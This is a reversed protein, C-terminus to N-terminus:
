IDMARWVLRGTEPSRNALVSRRSRQGNIIEQSIATM